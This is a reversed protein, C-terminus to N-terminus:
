AFACLSQVDLLQSVVFTIYVVCLSWVGCVGCLVCEM